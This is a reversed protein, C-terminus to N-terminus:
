SRITSDSQIRVQEAMARANEDAMGRAVMMSYIYDGYDGPKAQIILFTVMSLLLLLLLAALIRQTLFQLMHLTGM